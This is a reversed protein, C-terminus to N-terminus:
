CGVKMFTKINLKLQFQQPTNQLSYNTAENFQKTISLFTAIIKDMGNINTLIVEM